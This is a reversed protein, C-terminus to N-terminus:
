LRASQLQRRMLERMKGPSLRVSESSRRLVAAILRAAAYARVAAADPARGYAKEFGDSFLSGDFRRLGAGTQGAEAWFAGHEPEVLVANGQTLLSKTTEDLGIGFAFLPKAENLISELRGALLAQDRSTDLKLLYVDLGGLHGDSEEFSHADQEGTALLFGDVASQAALGSLPAIFVVNFTHALAPNLCCLSVLGALLRLRLMPKM